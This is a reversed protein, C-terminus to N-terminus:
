GTARSREEAVGSEGVTLREATTRLATELVARRRRPDMMNHGMAALDEATPGMVRVTCGTAELQRVERDLRRTMMRRLRHELWGIPHATRHLEYMTMPALVLVEDLPERSLVDVNTVSVAGGDVYSRHDIEIPPFYGPASCSAVVADALPVTPADARGFVVRRGTLQDMAVAWVRPQVPWSQDGAEAEVLARVPALSARGRPALGAAATMFTHRRPRVATRAALGISSALPVPRPMRGLAEDVYDHVDFPNVPATGKVDETGSGALREALTAPSLGVGILAAVLAGASTGVILDVDSPRYGEREELACLAGVAWAGGLAAGAGIVLARRPAGRGRAAM